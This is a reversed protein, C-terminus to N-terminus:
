SEAPRRPAPVRPAGGGPVTAPGGPATLLGLRDAHLLAETRNGAGLRAYVSNLVRYMERQSYGASRALGAVTAGGVLARLWSVERDSLAPRAGTVGAVARAASVPLCALERSAAGVAQVVDDEACSAPLATAGTGLLHRYRAPTPHDVLVVCATEPAEALAEARVRGAAETDDTLLLVPAARHAGWAVPQRPVAVRYGARQLADVLRLREAARSMLVVVDRPAGGRTGGAEAGNAAYGSSGTATM